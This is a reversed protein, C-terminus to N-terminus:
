ARVGIPRIAERGRQVPSLAYVKGWVPCLRQRLNDAPPQVTTNPEDAEFNRSAAGSTVPRREDTQTM